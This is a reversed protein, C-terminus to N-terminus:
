ADLQEAIEDVRLCATAGDAWPRLVTPERRCREVVYTCRPNFPCGAVGDFASAPRGPITTLRKPRSRLSPRAALLAASYPHLPHNFLNQSRQEEVIQGAYMVLTRDCLQGALALDHTIFIVALGRSRRLDDLIAVVEAQTTVDLSTTAEDAILLDPDGVIAGAIMVRQLMGGSLEDPYQRLRRKGDVIGVRRLLDVAKARADERGVGGHGRIGETLYDGVTWLPDVHSRPDQFIAGIRHALVQRMRRDSLRLLDVGELLVSGEAHAGEPLSRLITRATMTKGSGSEGVIGVIEGRSVSVNLDALVRQGRLWTNLNRLELLPNPKM